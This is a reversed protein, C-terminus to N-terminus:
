SAIALLPRPGPSADRADFQPFSARHAPERARPAAVEAEVDEGVPASFSDDEDAFVRGRPSGARLRIVDDDIWDGPAVGRLLSGARTCAMVTDTCMPLIQM